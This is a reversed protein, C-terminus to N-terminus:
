FYTYWLKLNKTQESYLIAEDELWIEGFLIKRHLMCVVFLM